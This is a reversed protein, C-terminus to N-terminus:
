LNMFKPDVRNEGSRLVGDSQRIRYAFAVGNWEGARKALLWLVFPTKEVIEMPSYLEQPRPEANQTQLDPALQEAKVGPSAV